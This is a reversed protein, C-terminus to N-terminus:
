LAGLVQKIHQLGQCAPLSSLITLTYSMCEVTFKSVTKQTKWTRATYLGENHLLLLFFQLTSCSPLLSAFM